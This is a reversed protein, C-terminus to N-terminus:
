GNISCKENIYVEGIIPLYGRKKIKVVGGLTEVKVDVSSVNMVTNVHGTFCMNALSDVYWVYSINSKNLSGYNFYKFIDQDKYNTAYPIPVETKLNHQTLGPLKPVRM